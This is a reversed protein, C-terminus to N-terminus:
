KEVRFQTHCANCTGVLQSFAVKPSLGGTAAQGGGAMMGDNGSVDRSEGMMGLGATAKKRAPELPNGAVDVLLQSDRELQDALASFRM